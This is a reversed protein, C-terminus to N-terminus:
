SFEKPSLLERDGKGMLFLKEARLSANLGEITIKRM